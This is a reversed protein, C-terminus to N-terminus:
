NLSLLASISASDVKLLKSLTDSEKNVDKVEKPNAFVLYSLNNAAIAFGDSTLIEGRQPILKIQSGYQAQGMASLEDARVIQWYSLRLIILFFLVIFILFVFRYRWNM